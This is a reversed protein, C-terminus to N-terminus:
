TSSECQTVSAPRSASSRAASSSNKVSPSRTVTSRCSRQGKM